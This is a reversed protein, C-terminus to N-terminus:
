EEKQFLCRYQGGEEAQWVAELDRDMADLAMDEGQYIVCTGCSSSIRRPVPALRGDIGRNKLAGCSRLASLHTHFTAIYTM